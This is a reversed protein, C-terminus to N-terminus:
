ARAAGVAARAEEQLRVAGRGDGCLAALGAAARLAAALSLADNADRLIAAAEEYARRAAEAEGRATLLVGLNALTRGEHRKEGTARHLLRAEEYLELADDDRGQAHRVRALEGLARGLFRADEDAAFSARAEELGIVAGELDGRRHAVRGLEMACRASARRDGLDVAIRMADSAHRWAQDLRGLEVEVDAVNRLVLSATADDGAARAAQLARGYDDLAAAMRGRGKNVDGRAEHARAVWRSSAGVRAAAALARDLRTRTGDDVDAGRRLAELAVVTALADEVQEAGADDATGADVAAELSAREIELEALAAESDPSDLRAIADRALAGAVRLDVADVADGRVVTSAWASPADATTVDLLEGSVSPEVIPPGQADPFLDRLWASVRRPGSPKGCSSLFADLATELEGCDTFRDGPRFSLATMVVDELARPYGDVVASPRPVDGAVIAQLTEAPSARRFLRKLTTLEWLVIGLAFQDVRHDYVDGVIQEPAMYSIKGKLSGVETSAVRGRTRAVGFDVVKTTGDFTVVLNQPSVDRHVLALPQGRLDTKAHAYCLGAAADQVVRCALEVPVREGRQECRQALRGADRGELYDMVLFLGTEDDGVELVDVVNPHRLDAAARAEDLFMAKFRPEHAFQPLIRKVVVLKEFGGIGSQKALWVEAMGGLGLRHLLEYRGAIRPLTM